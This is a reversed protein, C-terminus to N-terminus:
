NSTSRQMEHPFAKRTTSLSQPSKAGQPGSRGPGVAFWEIVSEEPATSGLSMAVAFAVATAVAVAPGPSVTVTVAVAM